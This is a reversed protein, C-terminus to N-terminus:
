FWGRMTLPNVDQPVKSWVDRDPITAFLALHGHYKSKDPGVLIEVRDGGYQPIRVWDGVECWQGEPWPEFTTRDRYALNGM